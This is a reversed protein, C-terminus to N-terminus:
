DDGGAQAAVDRPTIRHTEVRIGACSNMDISYNLRTRGKEESFFAQNNDAGDVTDTEDELCAASAASASRRSLATECQEPLPSRSTLRVAFARDPSEGNPKKM